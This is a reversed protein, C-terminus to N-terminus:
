FLVENLKRYRKLHKKTNYKTDFSFSLSTVFVKLVRRFAETYFLVFETTVIFIKLSFRFNDFINYDRTFVEHYATTIKCLKCM